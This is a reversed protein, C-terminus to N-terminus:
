FFSVRAAALKKHPQRCLFAKFPPQRHSTQYSSFHFISLFLPISFYFSPFMLCFFLPSKKFFFLPNFIFHFILPNLHFYKPKIIQCEITYTEYNQYEITFTELPHHFNSVDWNQCFHNKVRECIKQPHYPKTQHYCPNDLQFYSPDGQCTKYPM